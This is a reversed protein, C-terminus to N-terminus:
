DDWVGGTKHLLIAFIPAGVVATLISLPIETATASRALTDIVLLFIGGGLFNATLLVRHDNGCLMRMLHPVALGVFAIVGCFSVAVSAIVTTTIIIIIRTQRINIGLSIAEDESLSIVNLRWRLLWLIAISVVVFPAAKLIDSWSTGAMSGMLWYTIAPLKQEPDAVFKILSTLAEFVAGVIVGSLVLMLISSQGNKRSMRYTIFMGLFGMLTALVQIYLFNNFILIGLAAGFGASYSVGLTHASVLPNGFMAQLCVGSVSLGAGILVSMIIRPLRINWVVTDMQSNLGKQFIANSIDNLNMTYRGACIAIIMTSILVVFLIM